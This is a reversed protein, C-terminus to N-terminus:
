HVKFTANVLVKWYYGDQASDIRTNADIEKLYMRSNDEWRHRPRGLPRKGTYM